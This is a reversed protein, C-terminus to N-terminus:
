KERARSTPGLAGPYSVLTTDVVYQHSQPEITSILSLHNNAIELAFVDSRSRESHFM